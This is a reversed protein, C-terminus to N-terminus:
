CAAIARDFAELVETVTRGPADNWRPIGAGGIAIRSFLDTTDMQTQLSAFRASACMIAGAICFAGTTPDQLKGQCWGKAEILMRARILCDRPTM